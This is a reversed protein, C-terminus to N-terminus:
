LIQELRLFNTKDQLTVLGTEFKKKQIFGRERERTTSINFFNDTYEISEKKHKNELM